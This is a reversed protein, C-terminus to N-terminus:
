RATGRGAIPLVQGTLVFVGSGVTSGVGICLLDILGLRSLAHPNPSSNYPITSLIMPSPFALATIYFIHFHKLNFMNKSWLKM